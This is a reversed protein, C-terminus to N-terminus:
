RALAAKIVARRREVSALLDPKNRNTQKEFGARDFKPWDAGPGDPKYLNGSSKGFQAQLMAGDAPDEVMTYLGWYESGGGSDVFIRYFAVRPAPVGRDRFMENALVERIQSDDGFNSSFTIGTSCTCVGPSKTTGIAAARANNLANGPRLTM